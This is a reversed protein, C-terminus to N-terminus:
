SWDILILTQQSRLILILVYSINVKDNLKRYYLVIEEEDIVIEKYLSDLFTKVQLNERVFEEFERPEIRLANKIIHMYIEKNFYGGKSFLPHQSLFLVVDKDKMKIGKKRATSLFVLREWALRNLVPRNSAITEFKGYDYYYTLLLQIRMAQLSEGFDLPMIKQSGISGIPKPRQTMSGAGWLVFAPIIVILIGILTRRAFKRSRFIHLM